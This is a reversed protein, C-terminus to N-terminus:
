IHTGCVVDQGFTCSFLAFSVELLSDGIEAAQDEDALTNEICGSLEDIHKCIEGPNPIGEDEVVQLDGIGLELAPFILSRLFGGFRLSHPTLELVEVIESIRPSLLGLDVVEDECLIWVTFKDATENDKEVSLFPLSPQSGESATCGRSHSNM